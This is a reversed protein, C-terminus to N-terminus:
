LQQLFAIVDARQWRVINSSIKFPAPLRGNATWNWVTRTTVGFFTAIDKASWNPRDPLDLPPRLPNANLTTSM